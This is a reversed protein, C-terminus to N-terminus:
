ADVFNTGAQPLFEVVVGAEAPGIDPKINEVEWHGDCVDFVQPGGSWVVPGRLQFLRPHSWYTTHTYHIHAKSKRGTREREMVQNLLKPGRVIEGATRIVVKFSPQANPGIPQITLRVQAASHGAHTQGALLIM